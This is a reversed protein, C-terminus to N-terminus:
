KEEDAKMSIIAVPTNEYFDIHIDSFFLTPNYSNLEYIETLVLILDKDRCIKDDKGTLRFTMSTDFLPTNTVFILGEEVLFDVCIKNQLGLVKALSKWFVIARNKNRIDKIVMIYLDKM